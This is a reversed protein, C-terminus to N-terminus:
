RGTLYVLGEDQQQEELSIEQEVQVGDEVV